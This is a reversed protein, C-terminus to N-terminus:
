PVYSEGKRAGATTNLNTIACYQSDRCNIANPSQAFNIESATASSASFSMSISVTKATDTTVTGAPTRNIAFKLVSVDDSSLVETSGGNKAPTCEDTVPIAIGNAPNILIRVGAVQRRSLVYRGSDLSTYYMVGSAAATDMDVGGVTAQGDRKADSFLCVTDHYIKASSDISSPDDLGSARVFYIADRTDRSIETAAARAGDQTARIGLGAQYIHFLHLIGITLVLFTLSSIAMAIILEVFTFGSSSNSVLKFM